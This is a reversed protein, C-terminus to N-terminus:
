YKIFDLLYSSLFIETFIKSITVRLTVDNQTVRNPLEIQYTWFESGRKTPNKTDKKDIFTVHYTSNSMCTGKYVIIKGELSRQTATITTRSFEDVAQSIYQKLYRNCTLM